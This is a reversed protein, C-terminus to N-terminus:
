QLPRLEAVAIMPGGTYHCYGMVMVAGQSLRECTNAIGVAVFKKPRKPAAKLAEERGYIGVRRGDLEDSSQSYRQRADSLTRFLARGYWYGTVAVCKGSWHDPQEALAELALKKAVGLNCNEPNAAVWMIVSGDDTPTTPTELQLAAAVALSLLPSM